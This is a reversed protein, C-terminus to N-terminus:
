PAEEAPTVEFLRDGLGVQAGAAVDVATVLGDYPAKLSLEMKMAEMIGLVQGAEVRDGAEVQVALVTGPMPALVTRDGTAPGHDAFADEHEFFSRQGRCVVEVGNRRDWLRVPLSRGDLEVQVEGRRQLEEPDHAFWGAPPGVRIALGDVLAGDAPDGAVAVVRDLHVLLDAVDAGLRWGDAAFPGDADSRRAAVAEVAAVVARGLRHPDVELLEAGDGRDLWATDVAAAAFPESAVLQRVFGVNTTLGAIVTEDLAGVLRERAAERDPGHVIVKALMPDFRASVEQGSELAQDVRVDDGHVYDAHRRNEGHPWEVYTATGAQPLFGAHPDEAYIRAEIAHGDTRIHEQTLPLPEGLAVRLQWDVLDLGTVLETVPHEVQLRTNMELFAVGPPYGGPDGGSALDVGPPYGGPDGGSALTPASEDVLFEVTGANVYGVQRALAVAADTVARRQADSITPAPAEEVVKQHRRQVSCDREGLHVVNGHTDGFVQVEIHRGREVYKEILLRDDGFASAAERAAAALADPLEAASAVIRMGKGGGGAAAKVLVPYDFSTPDADVGYAPVVPVGAQEAVRRAAAKDGMLDMVEASPGVLALGAAAVARAFAARESLFGYGPHVLTAGADVAAAVVAEIDLYSPVERAEDAMRVHLADAEDATHIAVTRWTKADGVTRLIRCAIEGRNAILLTHTM